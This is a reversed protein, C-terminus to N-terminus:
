RVVECRVRNRGAGGACTDRAADGRLIDGGTNGFLRDRGTGGRVRDNGAGGVVRDRGAGSTVRDRGAGASVRDNGSGACVIDNGRGSRVVDNGAGAVIVDRRRTGTLRDNGATGVITATRGACKPAVGGDGNPTQGGGGNNGGGPPTPTRQVNITIKGRDTGFGAKDFAIYEITDTGSFGPKPTYRVTSPNALPQENSLTGNKPRGDAPVTGNPDTREYAPGTDACELNITVPTDQKTTTTADPCEPPADPAWDANGDFNNSGQDDALQVPFQSSDDSNKMVLRGQSFAGNSYAIKKGDPSWACNYDAKAADDSINV